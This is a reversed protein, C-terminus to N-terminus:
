GAPETYTDALRQIGGKVREEYTHAPEIDFEVLFLEIKAVCIFTFINDAMAEAYKSPYRANERAWISRIYEAELPRERLSKMIATELERATQPMGIVAFLEALHIYSVFDGSVKWPAERVRPNLLCQEMYLVALKVALVNSFGDPLCIAFRDHMPKLFRGVNPCSAFLLTRSTRKYVRTEGLYIDIYPGHEVISRREHHPLVLLQQLNIEGTQVGFRLADLGPAFRARYSAETAVIPYLQLLLLNQQIAASTM